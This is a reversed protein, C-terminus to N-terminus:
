KKMIKEQQMMGFKRWITLVKEKKNNYYACFEIKLEPGKM